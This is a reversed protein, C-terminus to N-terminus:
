LSSPSPRSRASITYCSPPLSHSILLLQIRYLFVVFPFHHHYLVGVSQCGHSVVVLPSSSSLRAIPLSSLKCALGSACPWELHSIPLQRRSARGLSLVGNAANRWNEAAGWNWQMAVEVRWQWCSLMCMIIPRCYVICGGHTTHTDTTHTHDTDTDDFLRLRFTGDAWLTSSRWCGDYREGGQARRRPTM